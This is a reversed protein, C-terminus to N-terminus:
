RSPPHHDRARWRSTTTAIMTLTSAIVGTTSPTGHRTSGPSAHGHYTGSPVATVTATPISDESPPCYAVVGHRWPGGTRGSAWGGDTEAATGPARMGTHDHPRRCVHHAPRVPRAGRHSRASRDCRGRDKRVGGAPRRGLAADGQGAVGGDDPRRARPPPLLLGLEFRREHLGANGPAHPHERVALHGQRRGERAARSHQHVGPGPRDRVRPRRVALDVARTPVSPLEAIFTAPVPEAPTRELEGPSRLVAAPLARGEKGPQERCEAQLMEVIQHAPR